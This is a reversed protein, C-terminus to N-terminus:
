KDKEIESVREWEDETSIESRSRTVNGRDKLEGRPEMIETEKSGPMTNGTDIVTEADTDSEAGQGVDKSSKKKSNKEDQLAQAAKLESVFWNISWWLGASLFSLIVFHISFTAFLLFLLVVQLSAFAVNTAVILSPTPGPTFISQILDTIFASM